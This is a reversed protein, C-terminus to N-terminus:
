KVATAKEHINNIIAEYDKESLVSPEYKVGSIELSKVFARLQNETARGILSFIKLAAEDTLSKNYSRLASIENEEILAATELAAVDSINGLVTYENYLAQIERNEYKGSESGASGTGGPIGNIGMVYNIKLMHLAKIERVQDFVKLGWRNFFETYLDYSLKEGEYMKRILKEDVGANTRITFLIGFIFLAIAAARYIKM